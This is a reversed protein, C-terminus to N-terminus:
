EKKRRNPAVVRSGVVSLMVILFSTIDVVAYRTDNYQTDNRHTDNHETNNHQTECIFLLLM